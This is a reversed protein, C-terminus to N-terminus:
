RPSLLQYRELDPLDGMIVQGEFEIWAHADLAGTSAKAVGIKLDCPLNRRAMLVQTTLAKALCKAGGPMMQTSKHVAWVILGLTPLIDQAPIPYHQYFDVGTSFKALRSQLQQFPLCALGIRVMLLLLYTRILLRLPQRRFRNLFIM